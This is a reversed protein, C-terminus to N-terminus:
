AYIWIEGDDTDIYITGVGNTAGGYTPNGVASGAGTGVQITGVYADPGINTANHALDADFVWRDVGSDYGMAYGATASNQVIIGGDTDSTSGSAIIMFKDAITTNSSDITALTGNVDLNGSITVAGTVDVGAATVSLIESNGIFTNVENSTGFTIYEETASTGIKALSSNIISTISTQAASVDLNESNDTLGTGAIDSADFAFQNSANRIGDGALATVFDAISDKKVSLDADVFLISDSTAVATDVYQLGAGSGSFGTSASIQGSLISSTLSGSIDQNITLDGSVNGTVDLNGGVTLNGSIDALGNIDITTATLDIESGAALGLVNDSVSYIYEGGNDRFAVKGGGAIVADTGDFTFNAEANVASAGAATILRNNDGFNAISDIAASTLGTIGAGDGSLTAAEVRGFSGTSSASGTYHGSGTIDNLVANSGSVIVKRWQAM